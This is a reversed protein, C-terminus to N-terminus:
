REGKYIIKLIEYYIERQFEIVQKLTKVKREKLEKEKESPHISNCIINIDIRLEKLQEKIIDLLGRIYNEDGM